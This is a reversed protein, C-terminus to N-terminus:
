GAFRIILRCILGALKLPLIRLYPVPCRRYLWVGVGVIALMQKEYKM